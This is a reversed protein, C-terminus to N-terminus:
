ALYVMVLFPLLSIFSNVRLITDKSFPSHSINTYRVVTEMSQEHYLHDNPVGCLLTKQHFSGLAYFIHEFQASGNVPEMGYQKGGINLIGRFCCCFSLNNM